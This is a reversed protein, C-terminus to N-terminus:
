LTLTWPKPWIEKSRSIILGEPDAAEAWVIRECVAGDKEFKARFDERLYAADIDGITTRIVQAWKQGAKVGECRIFNIQMNM